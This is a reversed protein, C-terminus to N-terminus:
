EGYINRRCSFINLARLLIYFGSFLSALTAYISKGIFSYGLETSCQWSISAAWASIWVSLLILLARLLLNKIIIPKNEKQNEYNEISKEISKEYIYSAMLIEM